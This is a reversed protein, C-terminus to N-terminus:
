SQGSQGAARELDEIIAGLTTAAASLAGAVYSDDTAQAHRQARTKSAALEELLEDIPSPTPAPAGPLHSPM